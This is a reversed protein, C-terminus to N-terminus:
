PGDDPESSNELSLVVGTFETNDLLVPVLPNISLEQIDDTTTKAELM